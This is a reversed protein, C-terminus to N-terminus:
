KVKRSKQLYFDLNFSKKIRHISVQTKKIFIYNEKIKCRLKDDLKILNSFM